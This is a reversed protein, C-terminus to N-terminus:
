RSARRFPQSRLCPEHQGVQAVIRVTREDRQRERAVHDPPGLGHRSEGLARLEFELCESRVPCGACIRKAEQLQRVAPGTSGIPFFLEPDRNRCAAYHQWSM